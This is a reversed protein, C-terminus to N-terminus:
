FVSSFVPRLRLEFYLYRRDKLTLTRNWALSVQRPGIWDLALTKLRPASGITSDITADSHGRHLDEVIPVFM